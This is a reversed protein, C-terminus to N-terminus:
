ISVEALGVGNWKQVYDGFEGKLKKTAGKYVQVEPGTRESAAFDAVGCTERTM